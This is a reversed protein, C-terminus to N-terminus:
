HTNEKLVIHELQDPLNRIGQVLFEPLIKLQDLDKLDFWKFTIPVGDGESGYFEAQSAIKEQEEFKVEYIMSIEHFQERQNKFFMEAFWLPRQVVVKHGSEEEFEREITEASTELLEARGGPLSWFGDNERRHLLVKNGHVCLGAIRYNFRIGEQLYTIM